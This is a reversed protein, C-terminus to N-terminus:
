NLTRKFNPEAYDVFDERQLMGIMELVSVDKTIKMHYLDPLLDAKLTELGLQDQLKEITDLPTGKKFKVLVEGPAYDGEAPTTESAAKAQKSHTNCGSSFVILVAVLISVIFGSHLKPTM